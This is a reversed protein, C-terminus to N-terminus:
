DDIFGYVFATSIPSKFRKLNRNMLYLPYMNGESIVEEYQRGLCILSVKVLYDISENPCYVKNYNDFVINQEKEVLTRENGYLEYEFKENLDIKFDNEFIDFNNFHLYCKRKLWNVSVPNVSAIEKLFDKLHENIKNTKLLLMFGDASDIIEYLDMDIRKSLTELIEEKSLYENNGRYRTDKKFNIRTVIGDGAFSAM